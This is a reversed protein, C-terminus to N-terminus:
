GSVRIAGTATDVQIPVSTLPTDTPGQIVSAGQTPDFEAGHCPCYLISSGPDYQVPCGAHTCTADFAVFKGNPLHVVIGPDGNSPITFDASSNTPVQSVQAITTGATGSTATADTASTTAAPTEAPTATPAASQASASTQRFRSVLFVLALTSGIGAAAGRLFERRTAQPTLGRQSRARPNRSSSAGRQGTLPRATRSTPLASQAAPQPAPQALPTAPDTIGLAARLVAAVIPQRHPPVRAMIWAALRPDLTPWGCAAAGALLITVWGFLFVIDSGYFYPHIRWSASLFFILSLLAGFFAAPRLLLGALAGLGIALEGYAILAGFLQAHPSAVQLLLGRIPSSIAFTTIQKGVYGPASSRFYQPNTLKQLGAYVFTIGLFARLPLLV